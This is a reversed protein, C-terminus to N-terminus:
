ATRRDRSAPQPISTTKLWGPNMRATTVSSSFAVCISQSPFSFSRWFLPVGYRYFLIVLARPLLKLALPSTMFREVSVASVLALAMSVLEVGISMGYM